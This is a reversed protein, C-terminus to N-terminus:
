VCLRRFVEKVVTQSHDSGTLRISTLKNMNMHMQQGKGWRWEWKIWGIKRFQESSKYKTKKLIKVNLPIM